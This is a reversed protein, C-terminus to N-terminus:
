ESPASRSFFRNRHSEESRESHCQEGGTMALSSLSRPLGYYGKRWPSASQWLWHACQSRLSMKRSRDNQIFRLPIFFRTQHSEERRRRESHCKGVITMGLSRLSSPFGYYGISLLLVSQWAATPPECHCLLVSLRDNRPLSVVTPIRKEKGRQARPHPNGCWHCRDSTRLSLPRPILNKAASLIVRAPRSRM